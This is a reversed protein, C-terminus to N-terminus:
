KALPAFAKASEPLVEALSIAVSGDEYSAATKVTLGSEAVAVKVRGYGRSGHGGLYDDNLMLLTSALAKLIKGDDDDDYINVVLNMDFVAGEVVREIERSAAVATVRDIAAERKVETFPRELGKMELLKEASETNLPCDYVILRLPNGSEGQALYSTGFLMGAVSTPDNTPGAVGRSKITPPGFEGRSKELLSRLKGKLSSGPIFPEPPTRGANRLVTIDSGALGMGADNGGIHLGSLAEITGSIFIKYKLKGSAM